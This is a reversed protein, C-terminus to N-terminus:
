SKPMLLIFLVAATILGALTGCAKPAVRIWRSTMGSRTLGAKHFDAGCRPCADTKGWITFGCGACTPLKSKMKKDIFYILVCYVAFGVFLGTILPVYIEGHNPIVITYCLSNM